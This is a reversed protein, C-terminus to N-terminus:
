EPLTAIMDRIFDDIIKQAPKPGSALANVYRLAIEESAKATKDLYAARNHEGDYGWVSFPCRADAEEEGYTGEPLCGVSGFDLTRFYQDVQWNCEELLTGDACRAGTSDAYDMGLDHSLGYKRIMARHLERVEKENENSMSPLRTQENGNRVEWERIHPQRLLFGAPYESLTPATDDLPQNPYGRFRVSFSPYILAYNKVTGPYAKYRKSALCKNDLPFDKDREKSTYHDFLKEWLVERIGDHLPMIGNGHGEEQSITKAGNLGTGKIDVYIPDCKRGNPFPVGVVSARGYHPPVWVGTTYVAGLPSGNADTYTTIGRQFVRNSPYSSEECRYQDEESEAHSNTYWSNYPYKKDDKGVAGLDPEDGEPPETGPKQRLYIPTNVMVQSIQRESIVAFNDILFQDIEEETANALPQMDERILDYDAWAVFPNRIYFYVNRKQGPQGPKAFAFYKAESFDRSAASASPSPTTVAADDREYGSPGLTKYYRAKQPGSKKNILPKDCAIALSCFTAFAVLCKDM